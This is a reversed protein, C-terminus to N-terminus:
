NRVSKKEYRVHTHSLINTLLFEFVCVCVRTSEYDFINIMNSTGVCWNSDFPFRLTKVSADQIYIDVDITKTKHKSTVSEFLVRKRLKSRKKKKRRKRTGAESSFSSFSSSSSSRKRPTQLNSTSSSTKVYRHLVQVCSLVTRTSSASKLRRMCDHVCKSADSIRMLLEIAPKMVNDEDNAETVIRWLLEFGISTDNSKEKEKNIYQFLYEFCEFGERPLTSLSPHNTMKTCLLIEVLESSVHRKRHMRQFWVFFTGQEVVLSNRNEVCCNWLLNLDDQSLVSRSRDLLLELFSL